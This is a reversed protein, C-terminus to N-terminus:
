TTIACATGNRQYFPSVKFIPSIRWMDMVGAGLLQGLSSHFTFLPIGVLLSLVLFQLIFNATFAFFFLINTLRSDHVLLLIYKPLNFLVNRLRNKYKKQFFM